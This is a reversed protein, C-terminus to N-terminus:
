EFHKALLVDLKEQGDLLPKVVGQISQRLQHVPIKIMQFKNTENNRVRKKLKLDPAITLKLYTVEAVLQDESLNDLLDISDATIPGGHKKLKELIKLTRAVKKSKARRM